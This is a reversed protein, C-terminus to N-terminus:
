MGRVAGVLRGVEGLIDGEGDLILTAFQRSPEVYQLHMPRVTLLYQDLVSDVSRGREVIDRRLRRALRLDAAADVYVMFDMEARLREDALVLIGEAIIFEGPEMLEVRPSRSHTPFDYVPLDVPEGRRLAALHEAFLATDLAEPSDFNHGRPQPADFYYRDHQILAAGLQRAAHIAISTKGSATGGAMGVVLPRRM